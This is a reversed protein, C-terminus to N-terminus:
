YFTTKKILFYSRKHSHAFMWTESRRYNSRPAPPRPSWQFAYLRNLSPCEGVKIINGTQIDLILPVPAHVHEQLAKQLMQVKSHLPRLRLPHCCGEQMKLKTVMGSLIQGRISVDGTLPSKTDTYAGKIAETTDRLGSQCLIM